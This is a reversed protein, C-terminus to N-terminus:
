NNQKNRLQKNINKEKNIAQKHKEERREKGQKLLLHSM